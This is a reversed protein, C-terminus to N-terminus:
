IITKLLNPTLIFLLGITLNWAAHVIACCRDFRCGLKWGRAQRKVSMAKRFFLGVLLLYRAEVLIAFGHSIGLVIVAVLLFKAIELDVRNIRNILTNLEPRLHGYASGLLSESVIVIFEVIILKGLDGNALIFIAILFVLRQSYKVAHYFNLYSRGFIILYGESFILWAPYIWFWRTSFPPDHSALWIWSLLGMSLLYTYLMILVPGPQDEGNDTRHNAANM